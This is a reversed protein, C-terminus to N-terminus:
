LIYMSAQTGSILFFRNRSGCLFVRSTASDLARKSVVRGNQSIVYLETQATVVAYKGFTDLSSVTGSVACEGKLNGANDYFVISSGGGTGGRFALALTGGPYMSFKQLERGGFDLKFKQTGDAKFCFLAEDGVAILEGKNYLINSVLNEDGDPQSQPVTEKLDFQMVTTLRSLDKMNGAAVAMRKSDESVAVSLVNQEASHWAFLEKGKANYVKVLAKFGREKMVVAFVGKSNVSATIIEGSTQLEQKIKGGATLMVKTGGREAALVYRGSASLIPDTVAFSIKWSQRGSNSIGVIGDKGFVAVGGSYKQSVYTFSTDLQVNEGYAGNQFLGLISPRGGLFYWLLLFALLFALVGFYLPKKIKSYDM